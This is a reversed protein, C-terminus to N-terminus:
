KYLLLRQRFYKEFWNLFGAVYPLLWIITSLTEYYNKAKEDLM